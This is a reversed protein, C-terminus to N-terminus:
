SGRQSQAGPAEELNVLETGPPRELEFKDDGLPQNFELNTVNLILGYSDLPRDVAIRRPYSIEGAPQYDSYRADTAVEGDEDFVQLRELTLGRREFWLTRALRLEGRDTRNLIHVLYYPTDEGRPTAQLVAEEQGPEAGSVLLADLIHKPRLNELGSASRRSGDSEGVLFRNKSPIYLGFNEGDSALDFATSRVVPYQGIMRLDDPKRILLFARVDRYHVIEGRLDSRVSPEIEVTANLTEIAAEREAIQALLESLTADQLEAAPVPDVIRERRRVACASVSLCLLAV